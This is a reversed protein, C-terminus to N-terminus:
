NNKFKDLFYNNIMIKLAKEPFVCVVNPVVGKYLGLLGETRIIKIFCDCSNNYLKKKISVQNQMRTKILDIPFVNFAGVSGSIGGLVFNKLDKNM